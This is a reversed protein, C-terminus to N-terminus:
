TGGCGHGQQSALSSLPSSPRLGSRDHIIDSVKEWLHRSVCLRAETQEGQYGSWHWEAFAVVADLLEKEKMGEKKKAVERMERVAGVADDRTLVGTQLDIEVETMIRDEESM